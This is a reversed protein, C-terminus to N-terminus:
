KTIPINAKGYISKKFWEENVFRVYEEHKGVRSPYTGQFSVLRNINTDHVVIYGTTADYSAVVGSFSQYQGIYKGFPRETDKIFLAYLVFIFVLIFLTLTSLFIKKM